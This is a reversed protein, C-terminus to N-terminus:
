GTHGVPPWAAEVADAKSAMETLRNCLMELASQQGQRAQKILARTRTLESRLAPVEPIPIGFDPRSILDRLFNLRRSLNQFARPSLETEVLEKMSEVAISKIALAVFEEGARKPDMGTRIASEYAIAITAIGKTAPKAEGFLGLTSSQVEALAKGDPNEIRFTAPSRCFSAYGALGSLVPSPDPDSPPAIVITGGNRSVGQVDLGRSAFTLKALVPFVEPTDGSCLFEPAVELGYVSVFCAFAADAGAIVAILRHFADLLQEIDWEEGTRWDRIAEKEPVWRYQVHAEANRLGVDVGSALAQGLAGGSRLRDRLEGLMPPQDSASVQTGRTLAELDIALWGVTRFISEALQRYSTLIRDAADTDTSDEKLEEFARQVRSLAAYITPGESSSLLALSRLAASDNAHAARLAGAPLKAVQHGASPRETGALLVLPGVLGPSAAPELDLGDLLGAFYRNLSTALSDLPSTENSFSLLVLGPDISGDEAVYIGPRGLALEVRANLAEEGRAAVREKAAVLAEMELFREWCVQAQSSAVAADRFTPARFLELLVSALEGSRICCNKIQEFLDDAPPAPDFGALAQLAERVEEVKDLYGDVASRIKVGVTKRDGFDLGNFSKGVSDLDDLM